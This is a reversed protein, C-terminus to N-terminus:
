GLCFWGLGHTPKLKFALKEKMLNFNQFKKFGPPAKLFCAPTSSAGCWRRVVPQTDLYTLTTCRSVIRKRYYPQGTLPNGALYLM